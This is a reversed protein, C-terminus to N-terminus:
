STKLSGDLPQDPSSTVVQARHEDTMRGDSM